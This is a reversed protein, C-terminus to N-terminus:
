KPDKKSFISTVKLSDYIVYDTISANIMAVYASMLVDNLWRGYALRRLDGFKLFGDVGVYDKIKM